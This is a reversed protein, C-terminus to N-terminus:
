IFPMQSGARCIFRNSVWNRIWASDLKACLYDAVIKATMASAVEGAKYGGMGDALVVCGYDACVVIADENHKRVRGIDSLAAFELVYQHSM